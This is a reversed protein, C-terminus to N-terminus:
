QLLGLLAAHAQCFANEGDTRGRTKANQELNKLGVFDTLHPELSLFGEYGAQDLLEFVERLKGDGEGAPVVMHNETLADKIHIYTVYPALLKYAELPDQDCQVFNAFDFTCKYHDGYFREMLELCRPATDGYIDSENEHLLVMDRRAAAQVMLDTRRFVEEKYDEPQKGSEAQDPLFFSFMRIKNTGLIEAIDMVHELKELHPEFADEIGIKGIPSGLASVRIGNADLKARLDKAQELTYDAVNRGEASRFELWSIGLTKLLAIQKDIDVDIEDAFGSIPCNILRNRKQSMKVEGEAQFPM